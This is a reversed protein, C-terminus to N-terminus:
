SAYKSIDKLRSEFQSLLQTPPLLSITTLSPVHDEKNFFSEGHRSLLGQQNLRVLPVPLILYAFGAISCVQTCWTYKLMSQRPQAHISWFFNTYNSVLERVESAENSEATGTQANEQMWPFRQMQKALQYIQFGKAFRNEDNLYRLMREQWDTPLPPSLVDLNQTMQLRRDRIKILSHSWDLQPSTQKLRTYLSSQASYMCRYLNLINTLLRLLCQCLGSRKNSFLSDAILSDSSADIIQFLIAERFYTLLIFM